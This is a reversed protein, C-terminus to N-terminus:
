EGDSTEEDADVVEIGKCTLAHVLDESDPVRAKVKPAIYHSIAQQRSRARVLAVPESVIGDEETVLYIRKV